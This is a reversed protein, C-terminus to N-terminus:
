AASAALVLAFPIRRVEVRHDAIRDPDAPGRHYYVRVRGGMDIHAAFERGIDDITSREVWKASPVYVGLVRGDRSRGFPQMCGSADPVLGEVSALAALFTASGAPYCGYDISVAGLQNDVEAFPKGPRMVFVGAEQRKARPSGDVVYGAATDSRSNSFITGSPLPHEGRSAHLLRPLWLREALQEDPPLAVYVARRGAATAVAAMEAAPSGIDVVTSGDGTFLALLRAMLKAPKSTAVTASVIERVALAELEKKADQSYDVETPDGVEDTAGKRVRGFWMTTQNLRQDEGDAYVKLAPIADDKSKFDVSDEATRALLTSAPFEWYRGKGSASTKGPRTTGVWPSGGAAVICTSYVAGCRGKPLTETMVRLPGGEEPAGDGAKESGVLLWPVRAPPPASADDTVEIEFEREASAGSRDTVRAVFRWHGTSTPEGWIVGSKPSIRWIGPPLEGSTLEWRYPCVRVEYDCDPKNAGKQEAKWAGRPDGDPSSFGKAPLRLSVPPLSEIRRAYLLINDHVPSLERMNPMNRPSYGKQWAVTGLHNQPGVLEDLLLRAYSAEDIGCLVAIAGRDELLAIARRLVARALSLWTDLVRERDAADFSGANTKIRPLDVYALRVDRGLQRRLADLAPCPDGLVMWPDSAPDGTAEPSPLLPLVRAGTPTDAEAAVTWAGDRWAIAQGRSPWELGIRARTSRASTDQRPAGAMTVDMEVGEAGEAIIPWRHWRAKPEPWDTVIDGLKRWPRLGLAAASRPHAHTRRAAVRDFFEHVASVSGGRVGVVFVRRRTQAIGFDAANFVAMAVGYSDPGDADRLRRVLERAYPENEGSLLGPVNEFLFGLPKVQGVIGPTTGLLDREDEAGRGLGAQSWPQCPPGGALIDTRGSFEAWDVERLDTERVLLPDFAGCHRLVECAVDWRELLALHTLNLARKEGLALGGFGACIEVGTKPTAGLLSPMESFLIESLPPPVADGYGRLLLLEDQIARRGWGEPFGQIAAVESAVLRRYRGGSRDLLHAEQPYRWWERRATSSPRNPEQPRHKPDLAVSLSWHCDVLGDSPRPASRTSQEHAAGHAEDSGEAALWESVKNLDYRVSRGVALTPLGERRLRWLTTRSLGLARTLERESLFRAAHAIDQDEFLQKHGGM